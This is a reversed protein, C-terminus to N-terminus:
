WDPFSGIVLTSPEIGTRSVVFFGPVGAEGKPGAQVPVIGEPSVMDKRPLRTIRTRAALVRNVGYRVRYPRLFGLVADMKVAADQPLVPLLHSYTNLTLSIQSPGLTEM